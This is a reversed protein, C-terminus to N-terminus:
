ARNGILDAIKARNAAIADHNKLIEERRTAIQESNAKIAARNAETTAFLEDIAGNNKNVQENLSRIKALNAEILAANSEPTPNNTAGILRTNEEISRANFQKIEENADMIRRNINIAQANLAALDHSISLVKGNLHSRHVLFDLKAKNISAERFNTEVETNSPLAQALAIRNRFLAETNENALQRNGLFASNQNKAILAANEQILSRILYAKAKNHNVNGEIEFISKRNTQIKKKNETTLNSM